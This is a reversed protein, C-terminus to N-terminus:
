EERLKLVYREEGKNLVVQNMGIEVVVYLGIKENLTVVMGNIVALNGMPDSIIGELILDSIFYDKDYHMITGNANVLPWFPDRKNNADYEFDEEAANSSLSSAMLFVFLLVVVFLGHNKLIKSMM